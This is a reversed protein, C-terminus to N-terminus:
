RSPTTGQNMLMSGFIPLLEVRAADLVRQGEIIKTPPTVSSTTNYGSIEITFLHNIKASNKQGGLKLIEDLAGKTVQTFGPNSNDLHGELAKKLKEESIDPGSVSISRIYGKTDVAIVILDADWNDASRIVDELDNIQSVKVDVKVNKLEELLSLLKDKKFGVTYQDLNQGEIQVQVKSKNVILSEQILKQFKKEQEPTVVMKSTPTSASSAPKFLDGLPVHIFYNDLLFPSLVQYTKMSTIRPMETFLQSLALRIDSYNFSLFLDSQNFITSSTITGKGPSDVNDIVVTFRSYESLSKHWNLTLSGPNDPWTLKFTASSSNYIQNFGKEITKLPQGRLLTVAAAAGSVALLILLFVLILPGIKRPTKTPEPIVNVPAVIPEPTTNPM